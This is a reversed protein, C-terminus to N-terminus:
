KGGPPVYKHLWAFVETHWHKSNAPKLVWHGEDPFNVFRSSLATILRSAGTRDEPRNGAAVIAVKRAGIFGKATDVGIVTDGERRIGTSFTTYVSFDQGTASRALLRLLSTCDELTPVVKEISALVIHVRPLTQTLDGNGENTVIVGSGQGQTMERRVRARGWPDRLLQERVGATDISVVSPVVAQTLKAYEDNLRSLLDMDGLELPPKEPLTYKEPRHPDKPFFVQWPSRGKQWMRLASVALFAVVAVLLLSLFSRLSSKM